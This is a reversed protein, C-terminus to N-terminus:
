FRKRREYQFLISKESKSLSYSLKEKISSSSVKAVFFSLSEVIFSRDKKSLGWLKKAMIEAYDSPKKRIMSVYRFFTKRSTIDDILSLISPAYEVAVSKKCATVYVDALILIKTQNDARSEVFIETKEFYEDLVDYTKEPISTLGTQYTVTSEILNKM